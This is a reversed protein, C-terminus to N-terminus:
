ANLYYRQAGPHLPVPDTAAATERRIGSAAPHVAVLDQQHDFLLKTLQYALDNPMSTSVVLLNADTLAPVDETLGYTGKPIVAKDLLNPYAQDVKPLLEQIKVFHMQDKAQSYLDAVGPTPLGGSWIMAAISGDLLAATAQPLSMSLGIIDRNPDLGAAALLRKGILEAGSGPSGLSVRHGRMDAVTTIGSDNRAIVHEYNNYTRALARIPQPRGAWLGTGAFADDAAAALTLAIDVDGAALRRVNDVSGGTPTAIADYGSMFKNILNAYGAGLVYFVGTTNGTGITIEGSHWLKSSPNAPAACGAVPVAALAGLLTRRKM